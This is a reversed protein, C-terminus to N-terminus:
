KASATVAIVGDDFLEMVLQEDAFELDVLVAPYNLFHNSVFCTGPVTEIWADRIQLDPMRVALVRGKPADEGLLNMDKKSLPREWAIAKGNLCWERQSRKPDAEDFLIKCGDVNVALSDLFSWEVM